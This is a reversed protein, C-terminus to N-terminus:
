TCKMIIEHKLGVREFASQGEPPYIGGLMISSHGPIAHQMDRGNRGVEKQESLKKLRTIQQSRWVDTISLYIRHM